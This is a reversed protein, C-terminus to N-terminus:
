RLIPVLAIVLGFIGSYWTDADTHGLFAGLTEINFAM